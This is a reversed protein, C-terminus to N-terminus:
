PSYSYSLSVAFRGLSSGFMVSSFGYGHQFGSVFKFSVFCFKYLRSAVARSSSTPQPFKSLLKPLLHHHLAPIRSSKQPSSASLTQIDKFTCIDPLETSIANFM